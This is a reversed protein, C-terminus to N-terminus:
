PRVGADGCTCGRVTPMRRVALSTAVLIAAVFTVFAILDGRRM